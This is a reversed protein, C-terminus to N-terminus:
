TRSGSGPGSSKGDFYRSNRYVARGEIVEMTEGSRTERFHTRHPSFTSANGRRQTFLATYNGEVQRGDVKNGIETEMKQELAM